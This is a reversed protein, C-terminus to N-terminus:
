RWTMMLHTLRLIRVVFAAIFRLKWIMISRMKWIELKQGTDSELDPWSSAPIDAQRIACGTSFVEAQREFSSQEISPGQLTASLDNRQTQRMSSRRVSGEDM